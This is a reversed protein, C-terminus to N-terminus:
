SLQTAEWQVEQLLNQMIMVPCNCLIIHMKNLKSNNIAKSQILCCDFVTLLMIRVLKQMTMESLLLKKVLEVNCRTCFPSLMLM